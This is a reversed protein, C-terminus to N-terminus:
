GPSEAADQHAKVISCYHFMYPVYRFRSFAMVSKNCSTTESTETLTNMTEM